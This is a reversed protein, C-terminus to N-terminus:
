KKTSPLQPEKKPGMSLLFNNKKSSYKSDSNLYRFVEKYGTGPRSQHNDSSGIFGFRYGEPEGSTFDRIALAYQASMQPRYNFAPLFCDLCEDFCLKM